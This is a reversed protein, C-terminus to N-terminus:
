LRRYQMAVAFTIIAHIDAMPNNRYWLLRPNFKIEVKKKEPVREPELLEDRLKKDPTLFRWMECTVNGNVWIHVESDYHIYRPDGWLDWMPEGSYATGTEFFSIAVLFMSLITKM